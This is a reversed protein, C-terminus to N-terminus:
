KTTIKIAVWTKQLDDYKNKNEQAKAIFDLRFTMARFTLVFM